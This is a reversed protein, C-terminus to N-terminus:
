FRLSSRQFSSRPISSCPIPSRPISSRPISICGKFVKYFLLRHLVDIMQKCLMLCKIVFVIVDNGM